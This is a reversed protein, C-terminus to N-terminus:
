TTGVPADHTAVLEGNRMVLAVRRLASMDELPNGDVLLLDARKGAEITGVEAAIGRAESAMRTAATITELPSMGLQRVMMELLLAFDAPYTLRMGADSSAVLKIGLAKMRRVAEFRAELQAVAARERSTMESIPRDPSTRFRAGMALSVYIGRDAIRRAIDEQYEVGTEGLWSCHELTDVGAEVANRIGPIGHVHAAVRRGLRHADQVIAHLIEASYQERLSNTGPTSNGGTAMVKVLDVGGKCVSRVAAVAQERTDAELGLYYFHGGTTTIAPGAALVRPGELCGENVANRLSVMLLGRAGLDCVTTVGARLAAQANGVATLMLDEDTTREYEAPLWGKSPCVLHLHADILGPLLTKDQADVLKAGVLDDALEGTRGVWVIRDDEILVASDRRPQGGTGDVLLGPKIVSRM